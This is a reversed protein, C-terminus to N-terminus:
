CGSLGFVLTKLRLNEREIEFDECSTLKQHPFPSVVMIDPIQAATFIFLGFSFM